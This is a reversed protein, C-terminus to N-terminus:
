VEIRTRSDTYQKHIPEQGTLAHDFGLPEATSEKVRRKGENEAVRTFCESVIKIM